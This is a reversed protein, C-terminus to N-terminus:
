GDKKLLQGILLLNNTVLAAAYASVTFLGLDPILTSKKVGLFDLTRKASEFSLATMAGGLIVKSALTATPGFQAFIQKMLPNLEVGGLSLFGATTLADATNLLFFSAMLGYHVKESTPLNSLKETITTPPHEALNRDM